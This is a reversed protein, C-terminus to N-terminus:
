LLQSCACRIVRFSKIATGRPNCLDFPYVFVIWGQNGQYRRSLSLVNGLYTGPLPVEVVGVGVEVGVAKKANRLNVFQVAFPLCCTAHWM